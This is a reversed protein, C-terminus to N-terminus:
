QAEALEQRLSDLELRLQEEIGKENATNAVAKTQVQKVSKAFNMTSLTEEFDTLTPSIAAMMVTRSNGCLSEKLIYTLKSNRFPPNAKAGKKSSSQKALERIVTALTSLSQNIAAGEKGM